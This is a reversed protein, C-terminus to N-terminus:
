FLQDNGEVTKQVQTEYCDREAGCRVEAIRSFSAANGEFGCGAFVQWNVGDLESCQFYLTLVPWWIPAWGSYFPDPPVFAGSDALTQLEKTLLIKSAVGM